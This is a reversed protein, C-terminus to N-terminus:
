FNFSVQRFLIKGLCCDLKLNFNSIMFFFFVYNPKRQVSSKNVTLRRQRSQLKYLSQARETLIHLKVLHYWLCSHETLIDINVDTHNTCTECYYSCNKWEWLEDMVTETLFLFENIDKNNNNNNVRSTSQMIMHVEHLHVLLWELKIKRTFWNIFSAKKDSRNAWIQRPKTKLWRISHEFNFTRAPCNYSFIKLSCCPSFFALHWVGWWLTLLLFSM